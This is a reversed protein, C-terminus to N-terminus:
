KSLDVVVLYQNGPVAEADNTLHEDHTDAIFIVSSAPLLQSLFKLLSRNNESAVQIHLTGSADHTHISKYCFSYQGNAFMSELGIGEPIEVSTLATIDYVLLKAHGHTGEQTGPCAGAGGCAFAAIPAFFIFAAIGLTLAKRMM